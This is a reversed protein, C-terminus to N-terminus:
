KLEFDGCDFAMMQDLRSLRFQEVVAGDDQFVDIANGDHPAILARSLAPTDSITRLPLGDATKLYSGDADIGVALDVKDPQDRKLPNPQLKQSFEGPPLPSTSTAVPKGNELSFDPHAVIKKEFDVKWDSISQEKDISAPNTAVLTLSRVRQLASTQELLFIREDTRSAAIDIPKPENPPISLKRLVVYGDGSQPADSKGSLQEIELELSGKRAHSIAWITGGKGMASDVPDIVAESNEIAATQDARSATAPPLDPITLKGSAVDYLGLIEKQRTTIAHLELQGDQTEIRSIRAIHPSTEDTVWDNFFYDVGEIKLDGVLFGRARYRGPPLPKGEDDNGDWSTELADHGATFESFADERHLVRVLKGKADYIGLSITGEMPPPAFRLAVTRAPPPSAIPTASEQAHASAALALFSFLRVVSLSASEFMIVGISTPFFM